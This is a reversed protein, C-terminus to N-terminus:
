NTSTPTTLPIPIVQPYTPVNKAVEFSQSGPVQAREPVTLDGPSLRLIEQPIPLCHYVVKKDSNRLIAEVGRNNMTNGGPVCHNATLYGEIKGNDSNLVPVQLEVRKLGSMVSTNQRPSDQSIQSSGQEAVAAQPLIIAVAISGLIGAGYGLWSVETSLIATEM